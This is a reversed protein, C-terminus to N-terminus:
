KNIYKYKYMSNDHKNILKNNIVIVIEFTIFCIYILKLFFVLM